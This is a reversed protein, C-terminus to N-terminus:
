IPKSLSAQDLNSLGGDVELIQGNLYSSKESLLFLAVNAIETVTGMRSLPILKNAKAVVEPNKSYYEAAREKFIFSGPSVGNIRLNNASFRVSGFRVLQSLAAKSAHYQFDQDGVVTRGAPSTTVVVACHKDRSQGAMSEIIKFPTYVEVEYQKIPNPTQSRYRHVFAIAELGGAKKDIELALAVSSEQNELDCEHVHKCQHDSAVKLIAEDRNRTILHVEHGSESLQRCLALAIPSRGGYVLAVM